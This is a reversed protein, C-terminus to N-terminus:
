MDLVKDDQSTDTVTPQYTSDYASPFLGILRSMNSRVTVNYTRYMNDIPNCYRKKYYGAGIALLGIGLLINFTDKDM